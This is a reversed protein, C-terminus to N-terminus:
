QFRHRTGEHVTGDGHRLIEITPMGKAGAEPAVSGAHVGLPVNVFSIQSPSGLPTNAM